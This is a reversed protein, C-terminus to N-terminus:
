MPARCMPCANHMDRSRIQGICANCFRHGCGLVLSAAPLIKEMCVPCDDLLEDDYDDLIARLLRKSEQVEKAYADLTISCDEEEGDEGCQLPLQFGSMVFHFVDVPQQQGIRHCRAVAQDEVAPNWHPSVFYVESFHQLNLGECGTQIQLILVDCKQTIIRNREGTLTRGDFTEVRLGKAALRAKLADIEGRYHCFLLKSRGNDQRDLVKEVVADLKSSPAAAQYLTPDDEVSGTSVVEKIKSDLLPPCVCMQRARLLAVLPTEGCVGDALTLPNPQAAAPDLPLTRAVVGSFDFRSHVDAAFRREADDAWPVLITACRLPPLALGAQQKTRRLVFSRVIHRLNLPNLYYDTPIRLVACMSDFDYASNQIPTGTILWRIKAKLKLAGLHIKTTRNRMHHAEDFVVRSWKVKHLLSLGAQRAAVMGYTTIVIHADRLMSLSIHNKDPGHYVLARHKLTSRLVGDWQELLARPLVILTRRMTNCLMVGIIQMTKGLGMEDAILGGRVLRPRAGPAPVGVTHGDLENALCWQVGDLQHPKKDLGANELYRHFEDINAM